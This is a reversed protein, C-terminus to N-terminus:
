LQTITIHYKPSSTNTNVTIPNLNSSTNPVRSTFEPINPLLLTGAQSNQDSKLTTLPHRVVTMCDTTVCLTFSEKPRANAIVGALHIKCRNPMDSGNYHSTPESSQKNSFNSNLEGQIVETSATPIKGLTNSKMSNTNQHIDLNVASPQLERISTFAPSAAFLLPNPKSIEIVPTSGRSPTCSPTKPRRLPTLPVPAKQVNKVATVTTKERVVTSLSACQSSTTFVTLDQMSPPKSIEYFTAKSTYIKTQPANLRKEKVMELSISSGTVDPPIQSDTCVANCALKTTLFSPQMLVKAKSQTNTEQQSGSFPQTQPVSVSLLAPVLPLDPVRSSTQEPGTMPGASSLTLTHTSIKPSFHPMPAPVPPGASVSGLSGQSKTSILPTVSLPAAVGELPPSSSLSPMTLSTDDDFLCSSCEYLPAVQVKYTRVPPTYHQLSSHTPDFPSSRPPPFPSTSHNYFPTISLSAVSSDGLYTSDPSRSPSPQDSHELDTSAENVPSLCSRFPIPTQSPGGKKKSRKKKLKQLRANDKGPKPLLPPPYQQSLDPELGNNHGVEMLM